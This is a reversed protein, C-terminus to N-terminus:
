DNLANMHKQKEQQELIKRTTVIAFKKRDPYDGRKYHIFDRQFSLDDFVIPLDKQVATKLAEKKFEDSGLLIFPQNDMTQTALVLAIAITEESANQTM